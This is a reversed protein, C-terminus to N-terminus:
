LNSRAPGSQSKDYSRILKRRIVRASAIVNHTDGYESVERRRGIMINLYVKGNDAKKFLEKPVDSVCISGYMFDSM